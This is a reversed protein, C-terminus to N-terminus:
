PTSAAVATGHRNGGHALSLLLGALVSGGALFQGIEDLSSADGMITSWVGLGLSVVLAPVCWQKATSPIKLLVGAALFFLGFLAIAIPKAESTIQSRGSGESVVGGGRPSRLMQQLWDRYADSAAQYRLFLYTAGALGIVLWIWRLMSSSAPQASM